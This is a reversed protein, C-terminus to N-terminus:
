RVSRDAESVLPASPASAASSVFSDAGKNQKKFRSTWNTWSWAERQEPRARTQPTNAPTSGKHLIHERGAERSNEREMEKGAAALREIERNRFVHMEDSLEASEREHFARMDALQTEAQQSQSQWYPPATTVNPASQRELMNCGATVALVLPLIFFHQKSMVFGRKPVIPMKLSLVKVSISLPITGNM